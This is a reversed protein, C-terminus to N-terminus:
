QPKILYFALVIVVLAGVIYIWLPFDGRSSASVKEIIVENEIYVTDGKCEVEHWIELRTTDYFYKLKVRDNNIVTVTDHSVIQTITDVSHVKIIVTDHITVTENEFRQPDLFMAKRIKRDARNKKTLACSQLTLLSLIILLYKM